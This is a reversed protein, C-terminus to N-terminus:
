SLDRNTEGRKILRQLILILKREIEQYPLITEGTYILGLSMCQHNESLSDNLLLKNKRFAERALRKIKNREVAKKFKKKSVTILMKVQKEDCDNELLYLVKFPYVFFSHGEGFLRNLQKKSKIREKQTLTFQM